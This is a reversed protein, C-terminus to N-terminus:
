PEVGLAIDPIQQIWLPLNEDVSSPYNLVLVKKYEAMLEQAKQAEDRAERLDFLFNGNNAGEGIEQGRLRSNLLSSSEERTAQMVMESVEIVAPSIDLTDVRGSESKYLAWAEKLALREDKRKKDVYKEYDKLFRNWEQSWWKEDRNISAFADSIPSFWKFISFRDKNVELGKPFGETVPLNTPIKPTAIQKGPFGNQFTSLTSLLSQQELLAGRSMDVALALPAMESDLQQVKKLYNDLLESQEDPDMNGDDMKSRTKMSLADREQILKRLKALNENSTNTIMDMHNMVEKVLRVNSEHQNQVTKFVNGLTGVRTGRSTTSGTKSPNTRFREGEGGRGRAALKALSTQAVQRSVRTKALASAANKVRSSATKRLALAQKSRVKSDGLAKSFFSRTKQATSKLARANQTAGQGQDIKASVKRIGKVYETGILDRSLGVRAVSRRSRLTPAQSMVYTPNGAVVNTRANLLNAQSNTNGVVFNSGVMSGDALMLASAPNQVPVYNRYKNIHVANAIQDVTAINSQTYAELSADLGALTQPDCNILGSQGGMNLLGLTTKAADRSQKVTMYSGLGECLAMDFVPKLNKLFNWPAARRQQALLEAECSSKLDRFFRDERFASDELDARDFSGNLRGQAMPSRLIHALEYASMNSDRLPDPIDTVVPMNAAIKEEASTKLAELESKVKYCFADREKKLDEKSLGPKTSEYKSNSCCEGWANAIGEDLTELHSSIQSLAYDSDYTGRSRNRYSGSRVQTNRQQTGVFSSISKSIEKAADKFDDAGKQDMCISFSMDTSEEANSKFSGSNASILENSKQVYQKLVDAANMLQRRMPQQIYRLQNNQYYTAITEYDTSDATSRLSELRERNDDLIDQAEQIREALETFSSAWLLQPLGMALLSLIASKARM